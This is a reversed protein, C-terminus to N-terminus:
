PVQAIAQVLTFTVGWAGPDALEQEAKRVLADIVDRGELADLRPRLSATFQLPLRLYPHGPEMAVVHADLRPVLGRAALLSRLRRGVDFEGGAVTFARVIAGILQQTHPAEPHVRWSASDSEELVIWGGPKLLRLHAAIQDDARGLPALLFRAHVLDFSGADLRSAFLDDRTVSVRSLKEGAVLARASDLLLDDVDTGVVRGGAGVWEDLLRLWGMAGCGVDVAARGDGRPLRAIAARGAPEWVRATLQLREIETSQGALLYSM